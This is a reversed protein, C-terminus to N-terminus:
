QVLRQRTCSCCGMALDISTRKWVTFTTINNYILSSSRYERRRKWSSMIKNTDILQIVKAPISYDICSKANKISAHTINACPHVRHDKYISASILFHNAYKQHMVTMKFLPRVAVITIAQFLLVNVTALLALATVQICVDTPNLILLIFPQASRYIVYRKTWETAAKFNTELIADSVDSDM